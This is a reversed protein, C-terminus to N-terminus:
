CQADEGWAISKEGGKSNLGGRGSNGVTIHSGDCIAPIRVFSPKTLTVQRLTRAIAASPQFWEGARSKTPVDPGCGSLRIAASRRGPEEEYYFYGLKQGSGDKVVFCADLEEASWPPTFRREPL